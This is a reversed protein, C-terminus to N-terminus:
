FIVEGSADFCVGEIFFEDSTVHNEDGSRSRDAFRPEGPSWQFYFTASSSLRSISADVPPSAWSALSTMIGGTGSKGARGDQKFKLNGPHIPYQFQNSFFNQL